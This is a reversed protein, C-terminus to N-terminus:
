GFPAHRHFRREFQRRLSEGGCWFGSPRLMGCFRRGKMRPAIAAMPGNEISMYRGAKGISPWDSPVV